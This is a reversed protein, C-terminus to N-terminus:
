EYEEMYKPTFDYLRTERKGVRFHQAYRANERFISDNLNLRALALINENNYQSGMEMAKFFHVRALDNFQPNNKRISLANYVCGLNNHIIATFFLIKNQRISMPNPQRLYNKIEEQYYELVTNFRERAEELFGNKYYIMGLVYEISPRVRYNAQSRLETLFELSKELDKTNYLANSLRYLLTPPLPKQNERLMNYAVLFFEASRPYDTHFSYYMDGYRYYAMENQPNNKRAREYHYTALQVFQERKEENFKTPGSYELALKKYIEGFLIDMKSQLQNDKNRIRQDNQSYIGNFHYGKTLSQEALDINEANYYYKGMMYYALPETTKQQNLISIIDYVLKFRERETFYLGLQSLTKHDMEPLLGQALIYDVKKNVNDDLVASLYTIKSLSGIHEPHADFYDFYLKYAQRYKQEQLPAKQLDRAWDIYTQGIRNLISFDEPNRNYLYYLSDDYQKQPETDNELVKEYRKQEKYLKAINLRTQRDDPELDVAGPKIMNFQPDRVGVLKEESQKYANKDLFAMAYRNYWETDPDARDFKDNALMFNGRKIDQLGEQLLNRNRLYPKLIFFYLSSFLFAAILLFSLFKLVPIFATKQEKEEAEEFGSIAKLRYENPYDKKLERTLLGKVQPSAAPSLLQDRIHMALKVPLKNLNNQIKNLDADTLEPEETEPYEEEEGFVEEEELPAEEREEMRVQQLEEEWNEYEVEEESEEEPLEEEELLPKEEVEEEEPVEEILEMEEPSEPIGEIIEETLEEQPEEEIEEPVEEEEEEEELPIETEEKEEPLQETEAIDFDFSIEEGPAEETEESIFDKLHSLEETEEATEEAVEEEEMPIEEPEEELEIEPAEEIGGTESIAEEIEESSFEEKVEEAESIGEEEEIEPIEAAEEELGFPEEGLSIEEFEEKEGEELEEPAEEEMSLEEEFSPAEEEEEEELAPSEEIEEEAKEEAPAEEGGEEFSGAEELLSDLDSFDSTQNEVETLGQNLQTLEEPQGFIEALDEEDTIEEEELEEEEEIEEDTFKPGFGGRARKERYEPTDLNNFIRDVIKDEEDLSEESSIDEEEGPEEETENFNVEPIEQNDEVELPAEEAEEVEDPIDIEAEFDSGTLENMKEVVQAYQNAEDGLEELLYDYRKLNDV